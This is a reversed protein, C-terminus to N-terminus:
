DRELFKDRHRIKICISDCSALDERMLMNKWERVDAEDCNCYDALAADNGRIVIEDASPETMVSVLLRMKSRIDGHCYLTTADVPRQARLSLYN